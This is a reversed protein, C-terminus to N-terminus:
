LLSRYKEVTLDKEGIIYNNGENLTSSIIIPVDHQHGASYTESFEEPLIQRDFVPAFFIDCDDFIDPRCNAAKVLEDV